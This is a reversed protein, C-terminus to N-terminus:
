YSLTVMVPLHDSAYEEPVVVHKKVSFSAAPRFMVFDIERDPKNMPFTLGGATSSRKFMEGMSRITESEPTANFDGCLVVPLAQKSFYEKIFNVQLVRNNARLDLHTNAFLMKKGAVPEITVVGMARSEGGELPLPLTEGSLIPFKSLIAIGYDGGEYDISKAFYHFQMGSLKELEAAQDLDVGSRRTRVDVEQLAVLDAGSEKIVQAIAKVDIVGPKSPPNAHHINYTLVKLTRDATQCFAAAASIGLFAVLWVLGSLRRNM